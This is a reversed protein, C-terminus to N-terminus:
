DPWIFPIIGYHLISPDHTRPPHKVLYTITTAISLITFYYLTTDIFSKGKHKRSKTVVSLGFEPRSKSVRFNGKKAERLSLGWDFGLLLGSHLGHRFVLTFGKIPKGM